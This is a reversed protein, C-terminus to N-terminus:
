NQGVAVSTRKCRSTNTCGQSGDVDGMMCTFYDMHKNVFSPWHKLTCAQRCPFKLTFSDWQRENCVIHGTVKHLLATDLSDEHSCITYSGITVNCVLYSRVRNGHKGTDM